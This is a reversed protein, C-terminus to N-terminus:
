GKEKEKTNKLLEEFLPYNPKVEKFKFGKETLHLVYAKTVPIQNYECLKMYGALQVEILDWNIKSTVKLDILVLENEIFALMDLTGAYEDSSLILENNIVEFQHIKKAVRYNLIYRKLDKDPRINQKEFLEIAKHVETGRKSANELTRHSIESYYTDSMGRMIESVSPKRNGEIFYEHNEANFTIEAKNQYIVKEKKNGHM